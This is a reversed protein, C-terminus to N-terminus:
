KRMNRSPSRKDFLIGSCKVTARLFKVKCVNGHGWTKAVWGIPPSQGLLASFNTDQRVSTRVPPPPSRGKTPNRTPHQRWTRDFPRRASTATRLASATPRLAASPTRLASSFPRFAASSTRFASSEPRLALSFPRLAANSTRFASSPQRRDSLTLGIVRHM